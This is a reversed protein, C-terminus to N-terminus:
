AIGEARLREVAEIILKETKNDPAKLPLSVPGVPLGLRGMMTKLPGPNVENFLALFTPLLKRHLDIGDALNGGALTDHIRTWYAPLM